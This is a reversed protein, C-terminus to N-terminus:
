SERIPVRQLVMIGRRHNPANGFRRRESHNELRTAAGYWNTERGYGCAEIGSSWVGARSHTAHLQRDGAGASFVGGGVRRSTDAARKQIHSDAWRGGVDSHLLPRAARRWRLLAM